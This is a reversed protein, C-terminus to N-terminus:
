LEGFILREESAPSRRLEPAQGTALRVNFGLDLLASFRDDAMTISCPFSVHDHCYM